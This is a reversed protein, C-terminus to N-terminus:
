SAGFVSAMACSIPDTNAQKLGPMTKREGADLNPKLSSRCTSRDNSMSAESHGDIIHMQPKDIHHEPIWIRPCDRGYSLSM